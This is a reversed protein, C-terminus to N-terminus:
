FLTLFRLKQIAYKRYFVAGFILMMIGQWIGSTRLRFFDFSKQEQSSEFLGRLSPEYDLSSVPRPMLKRSIFLVPPAQKVEM